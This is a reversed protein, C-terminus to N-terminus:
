TQFDVISSGDFRYIKSDVNHSVDNRNNAVAVYHTGDITFAEWGFAGNTALAQFEAFSSGDWRYIKSDTNHSGVALYRTSDMRLVYM